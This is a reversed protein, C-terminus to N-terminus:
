PWRPTRSRAPSRGRSSSRTPAASPTRGRSSRCAGSRRKFGYVGCWAAPIRISGGGDTGEAFPLLGDAVAAASGGSSGGTNRTTDFPNRTPGFLPNDTTGRFGMVPSNTKGVLIAGARKSASPRVRLLLRARSDRLARIGGFTAPWGPKFDFLDKIATPVGHLPGLPRAPPSRPARGRAGRRAGRRVGHYVFANLSPNRAEIRESTADLM